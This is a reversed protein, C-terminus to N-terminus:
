DNALERRLRAHASPRGAVTQVTSDCHGGVMWLDDHHGIPLGICGNRKHVAGLGEWATPRSGQCFLTAIHAPVAAQVM